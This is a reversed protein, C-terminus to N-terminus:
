EASEDASENTTADDTSDDVGTSEDLYGPQWKAKSEPYASKFLSKLKARADQPLHV